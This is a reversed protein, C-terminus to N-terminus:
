QKAQRKAEMTARRKAIIAAKEEDTKNNWSADIRKQVLNPAQTTGLKATRMKEISEPKHKMGEHAEAIKRNQEPTNAHGLRRARRVESSVNWGLSLSKLMANTVEQKARAAKILEITEPAVPHNTLEAKKKAVVEPRLNYERLKAKTEESTVMGLNSTANPNMNYVPKKEEIWYQERQILLNVDTVAEVLRFEFREEGYKNWANQLYQSHHKGRRLALFHQRKRTQIDVSSGVYCHRTGKLMIEYVGSIRM